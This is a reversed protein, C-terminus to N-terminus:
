KLKGATVEVSGGRALGLRVKTGVKVSTLSWYLYGNVGAVDHGDVSVIEDGAQLGAQAAPGGPRVFSVIRRSEEPKRDPEGERLKYGLDGSAEDEAVREAAIKIPPLE